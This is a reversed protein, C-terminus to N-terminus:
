TRFHLLAGILHVWAAFALSVWHLFLEPYSAATKSLHDLCVASGLVVSLWSALAFVCCCLLATPSPSALTSAVMNGLGAQTGM